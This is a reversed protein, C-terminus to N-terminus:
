GVSEVDDRQRIHEIARLFDEDNRDVPDALHLFLIRKFHPGTPTMTFLNEVRSFSYEPFDAPTYTKNAHYAAVTAENTLVVSVMRVPPVPCICENINEIETVGYVDAQAVELAITWYSIATAMGMHFDTIIYLKNDQRQVGNIDFRGGANAAVFLYLVLANQAFYEDDYTETLDALYYVNYPGGTGTWFQFFRESAVHNLEEKSRIITFLAHNNRSSISNNIAGVRFPISQDDKIPIDVPEDEGQANDNGRSSETTIEAGCKETVLESTVLGCSVFM